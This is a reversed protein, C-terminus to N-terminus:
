SAEKPQQAKATEAPERIVQIGAIKGKKRIVIVDRITDCTSKEPCTECNLEDCEYTGDRSRTLKRISLSKGQAERAIKELEEVDQRSSTVFLVEVAELAPFQMKYHAMLARGLTEFRFGRAAAERSVRSWVKRPLYRIMYGELRHSLDSARELRPLDKDELRSAGALIVQGFPLSQGPADPIDPGIWTVVGDQVLEAQPTWLVMSASGQIPNGLEVSTEEKLIVFPRPTPNFAVPLGALLEEASGRCSVRGACAGHGAGLRAKLFARVAFIQEDFHAM